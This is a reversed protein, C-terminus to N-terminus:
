YLPRYKPCTLTWGKTYNTPVNEYGPITASVNLSVSIQLDDCIHPVNNIGNMTVMIPLTGRDACWFYEALSGYSDSVLTGFKQGYRAINGDMRPVSCGSAIANNSILISLVFVIKKLTINM